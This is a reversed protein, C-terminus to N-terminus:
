RAGAAESAESDVVVGVNKGIWTARPPTSCACLLALVSLVALFKM